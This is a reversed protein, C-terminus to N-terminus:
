DNPDETATDVGSTDASPGFCQVPSKLLRWTSGTGHIAFNQIWGREIWNDKMKYWSWLSMDFSRRVEDANFDLTGLRKNRVAWLYRYVREEKARM